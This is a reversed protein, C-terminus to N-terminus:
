NGDLRARIQDSGQWNDILIMWFIVRLQYHPVQAGTSDTFTITASGTLNGTYTYQWQSGGGCGGSCPGCTATTGM